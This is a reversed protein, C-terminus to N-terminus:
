DEVGITFIVTLGDAEITFVLLIWGEVEITYIAIFGDEEMTLVLIM